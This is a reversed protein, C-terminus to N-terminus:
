RGADFELRGDARDGDGAPVAVIILWTGDLLGVLLRKTVTRQRNSSAPLVIRSVRTLAEEGRRQDPLRIRCVM